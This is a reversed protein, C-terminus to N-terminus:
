LTGEERLKQFLKLLIISKNMNEIEEQNLRSLSYMELFKDIEELDYM